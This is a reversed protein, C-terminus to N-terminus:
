EKTYYRLNNNLVTAQYYDQRNKDFRVIAKLPKKSQVKELHDKGNFFMITLNKTIIKLHEEKLLQYSYNEILLGFVPYNLGPGYPELIEWQKIEEVRIYSTLYVFDLYLNEKQIAPPLAEPLLTKFELLNEAKLAIGAALDHGGYAQLSLSVTALAEQLKYGEPARISGKLSDGKESLVVTVKDSASCIRGAILGVLGEHFDGNIINVSAKNDVQKLAEKFQIRTLEQRTENFKLIERYLKEAKLIDDALFFELAPKVDDSLRGIANVQPALYFRLDDANIKVRQQNKFVQYVPLLGENFCKLGEKVYYRNTEKLEMVDSLTCLAVLGLLEHFNSEYGEKEALATMFQYTLAGACYSKFKNDDVLWPDVVANAKAIEDKSLHHDIIILKLGAKLIKASVEKDAIGQDLALILSCENELAYNLGDEHLGYGSKFRSNFYTEFKYGLKSLSYNAIAAACIGDCDFDSYILIKKSKYNQIIELAKLGDNLSNFDSKDSPNIVENITEKVCYGNNSLFYVVDFPLETNKQLQTIFTKDFIAHKLLWNKEM